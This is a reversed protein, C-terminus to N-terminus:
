KETFSAKANTNIISTYNNTKYKLTATCPQVPYEGTLHNNSFIDFIRKYALTCGLESKQEQTAPQIANRTQPIKQQPQQTLLNPPPNSNTSAQMHTFLVIFEKNKNTTQKRKKSTPQKNRTIPFIQTHNSQISAQLRINTM